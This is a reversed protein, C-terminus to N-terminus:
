SAKCWEQAQSYTNYRNLLAIFENMVADGVIPAYQVWVPQTVQKFAARQKANLKFIQVGESQMRQMADIDIRQVQERQWPIIRNVTNLLVYQLDTPLANIASASASLLMTGHTHADLTIYQHHKYIQRQYINSLPNEQADVEHNRLAKLLGTFPIAKPQANFANCMSKYLNSELVRIKLGYLDEPRLIPKNVTSFHRNGSDLFGLSVLGFQQLKQLINQSFESDLIQHAQRPDDFAYPLDFIQLEPVYNSAVGATTLGIDIKEERLLRLIDRDGINKANFECQLSLKGATVEYVEEAIRAIAMGCAHDKPLITMASLQWAGRKKTKGNRQKTSSTSLLEDSLVWLSQSTQSLQTIQNAVDNITRSVEETNRSIEATADAQEETTVAVETIKSQVDKAQDFIESFSVSASNVLAAGEEMKDSVQTFTTNAVSIQQTIEQLIDAIEKTATATRKALNRIENAVVAFGAGYQGARAAEITANLALINTENAVGDIVGLIKGIQSQTKDLKNVIGAAQGAADSIQSIVNVADNVKVQGSDSNDSMRETSKAVHHTKSAISKVSQTLEEISTSVSSIRQAQSQVGSSMQDVLNLLNSASSTVEKSMKKNIKESSLYTDRSAFHGHLYASICLVLTASSVIVTVAFGWGNKLAVFVIVSFAVLSIVSLPTVLIRFDRRM